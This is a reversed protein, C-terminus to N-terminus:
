GGGGVSLILPKLGRVVGQDRRCSSECSVGPVSIALTSLIISGGVWSEVGSRLLLM